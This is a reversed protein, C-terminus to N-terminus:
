HLRASQVTMINRSWDGTRTINVGAYWGPTKWRILYKIFEFSVNIIKKAALAEHIEDLAEQVVYGITVWAGDLKCQFIIAKSDVANDPEPKIKVLVAEGKNMLQSAKALREQYCLEKTTGICKFVVRHTIVTDIGIQLGAAAKIVDDDSDEDDSVSPTEPIVNISTNDDSSADLEHDKIEWHWIVLITGEIFNLDMVAVSKEM